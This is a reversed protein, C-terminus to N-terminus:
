GGMWQSPFFIERQRPDSPGELHDFHERILGEIWDPDFDGVAVVAMLDPRYWDDYFRRLREPPASEVIEMKGIPMREAYKSGTFLIPYHKYNLRKRAGLRNRWEEVIVGREKDVEVPDFTIGHAWDELVLFAQEMLRLTDTPVTLQYVTVDFGTYANVDSGFRMGLSQLYDILENKEFHTTGNFAMHEVFHALGRQDEDELVSGANIILRLEARKEPHGNVMIYYRLGNELEGIRVAPDVPIPRDLGQEKLSEAHLATVACLVLIVAAAAVLSKRPM